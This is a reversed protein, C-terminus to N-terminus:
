EVESPLDIYLGTPPSDAFASLEEEEEESPEEEPDEELDEEFPESDASYDPLLATPSVSAPLPQAEAPELDDDSPALYEPYVPANALSLPAQNPSQSAAEPAKPDSEYADTLPIGWLPVDDDSSI